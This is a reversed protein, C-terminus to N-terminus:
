FLSRNIKDAIDQMNHIYDYALPDITLLGANLSRAITLAIVTNFQQEILINPVQRDSLESILAAIQKASPEKGNIEISRQSLHYRNAFYSFAPHFTLFEHKDTKSFLDAISQDLQILQQELQRFNNEFLVAKDPQLERLANYIVRAQEIALIPSLWTHPDWQEHSKYKKFAHKDSAYKDSDHQHTHQLLQKTEPRTNVVKIAANLSALRKIWVQEFPLGITFYVDAGSYRAMLRPSPEFTEPSQGPKVMVQVKVQEGGIREVFYKQPLISVFVEVQKADSQMTTKAFVPVSALSSICIVSLVINFILQRLMLM